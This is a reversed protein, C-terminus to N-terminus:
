SIRKRLQWLREVRRATMFMAGRLERSPPHCGCYMSQSPLFNIFSINPIGREAPSSPVPLALTVHSHGRVEWGTRILSGADDSMGNDALFHLYNTPLPCFPALDHSWHRLNCCKTFQWV